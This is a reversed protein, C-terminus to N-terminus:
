AGDLLQLDIIKRQNFEPSFRRLLEFTDRYTLQGSVPPLGPGRAYTLRSGLAPFFIRSMSGHAGMAIVILGLEANRLTFVALTRLDENSKAMAAFKVFDAGSEKAQGAMDELAGVSPTSDFNHNSVIVVKNNLRADDVVAPLIETSRLEIDIGNVDPLVAKFLQLREEDSGDWGGGEDETRITAITPFADFRRVQRVVHERDHSKYRDIRLEAVDLGDARARAIEDSMLGDAFSVAIPPVEGRLLERLDNVTSISQDSM